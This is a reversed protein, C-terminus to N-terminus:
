VGLLPSVGRHSASNACRENFFALYSDALVKLQFDFQQLGQQPVDLSTARSPAASEGAYAMSVDRLELRCLPQLRRVLSLKQKLADATGILKM